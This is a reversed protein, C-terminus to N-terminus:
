YNSVVCVCLRVMDGFRDSVKGAEWRLATCLIFVPLADFYYKQKELYM